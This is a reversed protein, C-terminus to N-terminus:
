ALDPLNMLLGRMYAAAVLAAYEQWTDNKAADCYDCIGRIVLYGASRDWTADAIGSGEMEVARIGFEDRLRDREQADKLLTNSSAIPGYFARPQGARRQPDAPHTLPVPPTNLGSLVDTAEDPRSSNPLRSGRELQNMWPWEGEAEAARIRSVAELLQAGPAAPRHRHKTGDSERKVFDYQIVGSRDSVVIDGLRVHREAHSPDPVGGAIGVMIVHQIQPFQDLLATARNAAVNNGMDGLLLHVVAHYGGGLAPVTGIDYSRVRDGSRRNLVGLGDLMTRVAAAEKPLATIIGIRAREALVEHPLFEGPETLMYRTEQKPKSFREGCRCQLENEGGEHSEEDSLPTECYPCSFITTTRFFGGDVLKRFAFNVANSDIGLFRAVRDPDLVPNHGAGELARRVHGFVDAYQPHRDVTTDFADWLM